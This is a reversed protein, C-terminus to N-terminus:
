DLEPLIKLLSAIANELETFEEPTLQRKMREIFGYQKYFGQEIYTVARETIEVEITRRDEEKHIRRIFDNECLSDIMRTAQQKPFRLRGALEGMTMPGEKRLMDLCYYTELSMNEKHEQKFPREVKYHWYPLVALLNEIFQNSDM